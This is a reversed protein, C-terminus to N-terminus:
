PRWVMTQIEVTMPDGAAASRSNVSVLLLDPVGADDVRIATRIPVGEREGIRATRDITAPVMPRVGARIEELTTETSRVLAGRVELRRAARAHAQLFAAAVLVAMAFIALAALAEVLTFGGPVTPNESSRRMLAEM